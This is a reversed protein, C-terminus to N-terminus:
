GRPLTGCEFLRTTHDLFSELAMLLAHLLLRMAATALCCRYCRLGPSNWSVGANLTYWLIMFYRTCFLIQLHLLYRQRMYMCHTHKSLNPTANFLDFVMTSWDGLKPNWMQSKSSFFWILPFERALAYQRVALWSDLKQLLGISHRTMKLFSMAEMWHLLHKFLFVELLRLVASDAGDVRCIHEIWYLCAYEVDEPLGITVSDPSLTLNCINTTLVRQLHGISQIALTRHLTDHDFLWYEKGCRSRTFLFDAFSPHLLRAPQQHVLCALRSIIHTCPLQFAAQGRLKDITRGALPCQAVLVIGIVSRFERVFNMDTWDGAFILATQYLEDLASESQTNPTGGLIIDLQANPDFGNVIFTAVTTAWIFLGSARTVLSQLKDEGPWGTQSNLYSTRRQVLAMRDRLYNLIDRTTHESSIDLEQLLIHPRSSFLSRIDSEPRSTIIFRLFSIGRTLEALTRLLLERKIPTGCEDLADIVIVLFTHQRTSPEEKTRQYLLKRFKSRLSKKPSAPTPSSPTTPLIDALLQQFQSSLPFQCVSPHKEIVSAMAAGSQQHHTGIQYAITRIVLLPDNRDLVDREFFLFAGLLGRQRLRNAISTAITSKGSGAVGHLCLVNQDPSSSHMVWNMISDLVDMRTGDLCETRHSADMNAPRLRRIIKETAEGLGSTLQLDSPFFHVLSVGM